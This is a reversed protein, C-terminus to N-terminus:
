NTASILDSLAKIIFLFNKINVKVIYMGKFWQIYTHTHRHTHSIWFDGAHM